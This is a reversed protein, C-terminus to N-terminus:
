DGTLAHPPVSYLGSTGIMDVRTPRGGFLSAFPECILNLGGAFAGFAPMVMRHSNSAFCRTRVSGGNWVLRAAPHLHGAIEPKDTTVDPEHRLTLGALEITGAADGGLRRDHVPDHNGAVWIWTRGSQLSVLQSIDDSALRAPGEGDHFSDGLAIVTAPEYRAIVASLRILTARTDYPPLMQGRRAFASGKELHLDAVILTRESPWYLAGSRDAYLSAAGLILSQRDPTKGSGHGRGAQRM